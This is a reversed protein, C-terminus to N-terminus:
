EQQNNTQAAGRGGIISKIDQSQDAVTDSFSTSLLQLEGSAM